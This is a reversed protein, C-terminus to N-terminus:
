LSSSIGYEPTIQLIIDYKKRREAYEGRLTTLPLPSTYSLYFSIYFLRCTSMYLYLYLYVYVYVYIYIYM